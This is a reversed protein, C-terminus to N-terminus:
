NGNLGWWALTRDLGTEFDFQPEWGTNETINEISAKTHKVDGPREPAHEIPIDGFRDIILDLVQNNSMSTGTGVNYVSFKGTDRLAVSVLASIVDDIYVMDRTQEGDGDSRLPLQRKLKDCWAAVATAYPSDGWCGPGYVNFFRLAVSKLGYLEAFQQLFMESCLKQLGYPSTPDKTDTEETPWDSPSIVGVGYVASSSAFIFKEIECQSALEALAVTKFLNTDTTVTPNQVSYEVRPNAALHFIHTYEGERIHALVEPDAFDGTIVVVDGVDFIAQEMLKDILSPMVPRPRVLKEILNNLSGSSLDDVVTVEVGDTVLKKVLHSGIFGCGGTVLAKVM